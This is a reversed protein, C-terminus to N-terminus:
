PTNTWLGVENPRFKKQVEARFFEFVGQPLSPKLHCLIGIQRWTATKYPLNTYPVNLEDLMKSFWQKNLQERHKRSVLRFVMVQSIEVVCFLVQDLQDNSLEQSEVVFRKAESVESSENRRKM